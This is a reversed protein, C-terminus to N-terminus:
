IVLIIEAVTEKCFDLHAFVAQSTVIEGLFYAGLNTRMLPEQFSLLLFCQRIKRKLLTLKRFFVLENEKDERM